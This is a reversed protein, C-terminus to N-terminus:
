EHRQVFQKRDSLLAIIVGGTRPERPGSCLFYHKAYGEDLFARHAALHKEIVDLPKMYDLLIVFM